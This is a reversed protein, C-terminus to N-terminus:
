LYYKNGNCIIMFYTMNPKANLICVLDEEELPLAWEEPMLADRICLEMDREEAEENQM